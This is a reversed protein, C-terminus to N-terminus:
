PKLIMGPGVPSYLVSLGKRNAFAVFAERQEEFGGYGFDDLLMIAGPVMKDWFYEAAAIEPGASNLDLHLFAIKDSTV